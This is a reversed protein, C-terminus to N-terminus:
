DTMPPVPPLNLKKPEEKKPAPRVPPHIDHNDKAPVTIESRWFDRGGPERHTIPADGEHQSPGQM